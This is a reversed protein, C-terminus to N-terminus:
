SQVEKAGSGTASDASELAHMAEDSADEGSSRAQESAMAERIASSSARRRRLLARKADVYVGYIGRPMLVAAVAVIVGYVLEQWEGIAQMLDPLWTFILAGLVAGRWSLAGGVIIMTLALVILHFGIDLPSVASRVLVNMAGAAGGLAGSAVFAALRYRRVRVGVSEALEPDDRVAEIRRGLRGRESMATLALAVAAIGFMQPM